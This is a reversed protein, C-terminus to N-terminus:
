FRLADPLMAHIIICKVMVICFDGIPRPMLSTKAATQEGIRFARLLGTVKHSTNHMHLM